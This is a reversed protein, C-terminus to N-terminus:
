RVLTPRHQRLRQQNSSPSVSIEPHKSQSPAKAASVGAVAGEEAAGNKEDGTDAADTTTDAKAAAALQRNREDLLGIVSDQRQAMTALRRNLKTLHGELAREEKAQRERNHMDEATRTSETGEVSQRLPRAIRARNQRELSQRVSDRGGGSGKPSEAQSEAQSHQQEERGKISAQIQWRMKEQEM